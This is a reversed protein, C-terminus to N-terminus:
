VRTNLWHLFLLVRDERVKSEGEGEEDEEVGGSAKLQISYYKYM